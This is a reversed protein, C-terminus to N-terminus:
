EDEEERSARELGLGVDGVGRGLKAWAFALDVRSAVEEMQVSRLVSLSELLSVLPVQGGAYSSLTLDFALKAQPLVDGELSQQRIRAAEVSWRASTVEGALMTKMAQLDAREMSVMAEASAIGSDYKGKFIPISIGVTAMLGPGDAMTYAGGLGFVGMPARMNRMVQVDEGAAAIRERMAAIEPRELLAARALEASAAPADSPVGLLCRPVSHDPERGLAADLMADAASIRAVRAFQDAELRTKDLAARVIDSPTGSGGSVRAQAVKSISEALVIQDAVVKQMAQEEAIMIFALVAQHEVDLRVADVSRDLARAQAEARRTRASLEGSLPVQQQWMFSVDAGWMFEEGAGIPLPLHDLNTMLMPDPPLGVAGAARWAARAREKAAVIEKRHARAYDIVDRIRLTQQALAPEEALAVAAPMSVALAICAGVLRCLIALMHCGSAVM